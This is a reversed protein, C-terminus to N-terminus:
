TNLISSDGPLEDINLITIDDISPGSLYFTVLTSIVGSDDGSETQAFEVIIKTNPGFVMNSIVAQDNFATNGHLATFSTTITDFDDDGLLISTGQATSLLQLYGDAEAAIVGAETSAYVGPMAAIGNFELQDGGEGFAAPM